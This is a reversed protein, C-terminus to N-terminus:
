KTELVIEDEIIEEYELGELHNDDFGILEIRQRRAAEWEKRSQHLYDVFEKKLIARKRETEYKVFNIIQDDENEMRVSYTKFNKEIEAEKVETIPIKPRPRWLIQSLDPANDKLLQEGLGNWITYHGTETSTLLCRGSPDWAANSMYAIKMSKIIEIVNNPKVFGFELFGLNASAKDTNALAFFAGNPSWLVQSFTKETLTTIHKLLDKSEPEIKYFEVDFKVTGSTQGQPPNHVISIKTVNKDVNVKKVEQFEKEDIALIKKSLDGIQIVTSTKKGRLRGFVL